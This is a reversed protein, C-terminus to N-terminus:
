VPPSTCVGGAIQCGRMSGGTVGVILLGWETAQMLDRFPGVSGLWKNEALSEFRILPGPGAHQAEPVAGANVGNARAAISWRWPPSRTATGSVTGRGASMCATMAHWPGPHVTSLEVAGLRRAWMM